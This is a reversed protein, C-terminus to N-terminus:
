CRRCCRLYRSRIDFLPPYKLSRAPSRLIAVRIDLDLETRSKLLTASRNLHSAKIVACPCVPHAKHGVGHSGPRIARPAAPRLQVPLGSRKRHNRRLGTVVTGHSHLVLVVKDIRIAGRVAFQPRGTIRPGTLRHREFLLRQLRQRCRGEVLQPHAQKRLPEVIVVALRWSVREHPLCRIVPIEGLDVRLVKLMELLAYSLEGLHPDLRIHNQEM